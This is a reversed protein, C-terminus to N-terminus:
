YTIPMLTQLESTHEESRAVAPQHAPEVGPGDLAAPEGGVAIDHDADPGLRECGPLSRRASGICAPRHNGTWRGPDSGSVCQLPVFSMFAISRALRRAAQRKGDGAAASGTSAIQLPRNEMVEPVSVSCTGTQLLLFRSSSSPSTVRATM